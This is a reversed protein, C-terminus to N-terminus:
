QIRGDGYLLKGGVIGVNEGRWAEYQLCALWGRRPIVDSNLVVVDAGPDAAAIGRNVDAAFGANEAGAVVEIGKIRALAALHEPGSADDAVVIRVPERPGLLGFGTRTTRRIGAVLKAVHEADRYSP